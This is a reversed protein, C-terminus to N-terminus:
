TVHSEQAHKHYTGTPERHSILMTNKISNHHWLSMSVVNINHWTGGPNNIRVQMGGTMGKEGDWGGKRKGTTVHRLMIVTDVSNRCWSLTSVVNMNHGSGKQWEGRDNGGTMGETMGETM